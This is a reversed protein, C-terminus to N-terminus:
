ASVAIHPQKVLQFTFFYFHLTKLPPARSLITVM